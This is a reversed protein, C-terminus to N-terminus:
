TQATVRGGKGGALPYVFVAVGDGNPRVTVGFRTGGVKAIKYTPLGRADPSAGVDFLLEAQRAPSASSAAPQDAAGAAARPAVAGLTRWGGVAREVLELAELCGAEAFEVMRPPLGLARAAASQGLERADLGRALEVRWAHM